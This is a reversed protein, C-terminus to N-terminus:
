GTLCAPDFCYGGDLWSLLERACRRSAEDACDLWPRYHGQLTQRQPPTLDPLGVEALLPLDQALQEALGATVCDRAAPLFAEAACYNADAYAMPLTALPLRSLTPQKMPNVAHGALYPAQAQGRGSFPALYLYDSAKKGDNVPYNDWLFPRRGLQDTVWSLHDLPYDTSCVKPGTWFLDFRRDLGQGLTHWYHAPMAGFVKELIPDTSYFSPCLIFRQAASVAAVDHAMAIQLQALQPTDSPMDDFLLAFIDPALAAEIQRVRALLRPRSAAYDHHAAMPTLGIGFAIGAQRCAQRLAQLQALTAPDWEQQWRRRLCADEKPAYLYFDYGHAKLWAPYALRDPWQWGKGFFGEILGLPPTQTM